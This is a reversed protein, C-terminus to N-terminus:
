AHNKWPPAEKWAALTANTASQSRALDSLSRVLTELRNGVETRLDDVKNSVGAVKAEIAERRKEGNDTISQKLSRVDLDVAKVQDKVERVEERSAFEEEFRVERKQAAGRSSIQLWAVLVNGVLSALLMAQLTFDATPSEAAFM